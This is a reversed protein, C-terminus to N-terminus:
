VQYAARLDYAHAAVMAAQSPQLAMLELAKLYIAPDPKVYVLCVILDYLSVTLELEPVAYRLRRFFSLLFCCTFHFDRLVSSILNFDLVVM